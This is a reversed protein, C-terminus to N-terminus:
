SSGKAGDKDAHREVWWIALGILGLTALALEMAGQLRLLTMWSVRPVWADMAVSLAQWGQWILVPTIAALVPRYPRWRGFSVVATVLWIFLWPSSPLLILLWQMYRSTVQQFFSVNSYAQGITLGFLILAVIGTIVFLTQSIRTVELEM